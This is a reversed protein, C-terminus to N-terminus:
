GVRELRERKRLGLEVRHGRRVGARGEAVRARRWTNRGVAGGVCDYPRNLVSRATSHQMGVIRSVQRRLKVVAAVYGGVSEDVVLEHSGRDCVAFDIDASGAADDHQSLVTLLRISSTPDRRRAPYAELMLTGIMSMADHRSPDRSTFRM